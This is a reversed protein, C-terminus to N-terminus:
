VPAPLTAEVPQPTPQDQPFVVNDVLIFILLLVVLLLVIRGIWRKTEVDPERAFGVPALYDERDRQM